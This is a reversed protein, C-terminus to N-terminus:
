QSTLLSSLERGCYPPIQNTDRVGRRLQPLLLELESGYNATSRRVRYGTPTDPPRDYPPCNRGSFYHHM